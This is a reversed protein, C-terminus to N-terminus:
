QEVNNQTEETPETIETPETEEPTNLAEDQGDETGSGIWNAPAPYCLAVYGEDLLYVEVGCDEPLDNGLSVSLSGEQDYLRKQAYGSDLLRYERDYAAVVFYYSKGATFTRDPIRYDIHAVVENDTREVQASLSWDTDGTDASGVVPVMSLVMALALLLSLVRRSM